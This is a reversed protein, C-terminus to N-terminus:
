SHSAGRTPLDAIHAGSGDMWRGDVKVAVTVFGPLPPAEVIVDTGEGRRYIPQQLTKTLARATEREGVWSLVWLPGQGHRTMTVPGAVAEVVARLGDMTGARQVSPIVDPLAIVLAVTAAEPAVTLAQAAEVSTLAHSARRRSEQVPDDANVSRGQGDRANVTWVPWAWLAARMQTLLDPLPKPSPFTAEWWLAPHRGDDDHTHWDAPFDGVGLGTLAWVSLSIGREVEPLAHDPLYSAVQVQVTVLEGM